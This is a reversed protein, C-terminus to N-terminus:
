SEARLEAQFSTVRNDRYNANVGPADLRRRLAGWLAVIVLERATAFVLLAGLEFGIRAAPADAAMRIGADYALLALMIPLAQCIAYLFVGILQADRRRWDFSSAFLGIILSLPLSQTLQAGYLGLLLAYVLIIRVQEAGIAQQDSALMGLGLLMLGGLGVFGLRLSMETGWRLASFWAGRHAVGIACSWNAHLAGEPCACMLEYTHQSKERAIASIVEAALLAGAVTAALPLLLPAAAALTIMLMPTVFVVVLIQTPNLVIAILGLAAGAWFLRRWRSRRGAAHAAKPANGIRRVIPNSSDPRSVQRWLRWSLM